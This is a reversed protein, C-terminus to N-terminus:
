STPPSRKLYQGLCEMKDCKAIIEKLYSINADIRDIYLNRDIANRVRFHTRMAGTINAFTVELRHLVVQKYFHATHEMLELASCHRSIGGAQLEHFLFPLSELYYRDAMQALIDSSGVVQGALRIEESHAPFTTPKSHLDTYNIIVACDRSFDAPFGQTHAYQELFGISRKEHGKMYETGSHAPDDAKLLLGSDHFCAALLGKLLTDTSIVTRDHHLGHFLRVTALLVLQSHRLNHYPLTSKQFDPHSGTFFDVVDAHIRRILALNITPSIEGALLIIEELPDGFFNGELIATLTKNDM